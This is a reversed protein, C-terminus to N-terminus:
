AAKQLHEYGPTINKAQEVRFVKMPSQGKKQGETNDSKYRIRLKYGLLKPTIKQKLDATERIKCRDGSPMDFYYAEVHKIESTTQDTLNEVEISAFIGEFVQDQRTWQWLVVSKVEQWEDQGPQNPKTTQSEPYTLPKTAM